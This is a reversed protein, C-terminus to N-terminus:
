SADARLAEEEEEEHRRRRRRRIWDAPELSWGRAAVRADEEEKVRADEEEKVRADEEEKVRADEKEKVRADEKEKEKELSWGRAAESCCSFHRYITELTRM